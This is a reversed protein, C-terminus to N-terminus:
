QQGKVFERCPILAKRVREKRSRPAVQRYFIASLFQADRSDDKVFCEISIGSVINFQDLDFTSVAGFRLRAPTKKENVLERYRIPAM